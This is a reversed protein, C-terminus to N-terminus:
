ATTFEASSVVTSVNGFADVQVVDVRYATGATLGTFSGGNNADATPTADSDWALGAGGAGAILQPSTLAASASPRVGAYITGGAENSTVAWTATTQGTQTGTASSLTAATADVVVGTLIQIASENGAADRLFYHIENATEDTLGTVTYPGGGETVVQTFTDLATGTNNEIDAKSPTNPNAVTAGYLTASGSAETINLVLQRTASTYSDSNVVPATTDPEAAWRKRSGIGLGIGLRM